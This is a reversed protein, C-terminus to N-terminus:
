EKMGTLMLILQMEWAFHAMLIGFDLFVESEDNYMDRDEASSQEDLRFGTAAEHFFEFSEGILTELKKPKDRFVGVTLRRSQM